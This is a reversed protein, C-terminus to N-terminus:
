NHGPVITLTRIHSSDSLINLTMDSGLDVMMYGPGQNDNNVPTARAPVGIVQGPVASESVSWTTFIKIRTMTNPNLPVWVTSLPSTPGPYSSGTAWSRMCGRYGNSGVFDTNVTLPWINEKTIFSTYGYALPSSEAKGGGLNDGLNTFWTNVSPVLPSIFFIEFTVDVSDGRKATAQGFYRSYFVQIM